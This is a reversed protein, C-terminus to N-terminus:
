DINGCMSASDHLLNMRGSEAFVLGPNRLSLSACLPFPQPWPSQHKFLRAKGLKPPLTASHSRCVGGRGGMDWGFAPGKIFFWELAVGGRQGEFGLFGTRLEGLLQVDIEFTQAVPGLAVALGRGKAAGGDRFEFQAGQPLLVFMEAGM